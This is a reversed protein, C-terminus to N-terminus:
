KGMITVYGRAKPILLSHGPVTPFADLIALVHDTEFIKYSPIAGDLIKAFINSNDYLIKKMAM